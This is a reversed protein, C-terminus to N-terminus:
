TESEELPGPDVGGAVVGAAPIPPVTESRPPRGRRKPQEGNPQATVVESPAETSQYVGLPKTEHWQGADKLWRLVAPYESPSEMEVIRLSDGVQCVFLLEPKRTTLDDLNQHVKM